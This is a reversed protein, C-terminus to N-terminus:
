RSEVRRDRSMADEDTGSAWEEGMSHVRVQQVGLAGMYDGVSRARREGLAFNYEETGREDAGGTLQLSERPNARFCEANAAIRDRAARDLETSDFGFYVPDLQCQSASLGDTSSRTTSALESGTTTDRPTAAREEPRQGGCAVLLICLSCLHLPTRITM